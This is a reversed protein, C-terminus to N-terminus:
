KRVSQVKRITKVLWQRKSKEERLSSVFTQNQLVLFNKEEMWWTTLITVCYVKKKTTRGPRSDIQSKITM